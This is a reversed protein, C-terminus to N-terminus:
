LTALRGFPCAWSVIGMWHLIVLTRRVILGALHASPLVSFVRERSVPFFILGGVWVILALLMLFRLFSM